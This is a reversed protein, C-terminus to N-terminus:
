IKHGPLHVTLNNIQCNNFLGITPFLDSCPLQQAHAVPLSNTNNPHFDVDINWDDLKLNNVESEIETSSFPVM